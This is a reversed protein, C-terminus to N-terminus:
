CVATSSRLHRCPCPRSQLSLWPWSREQEATGESLSPSRRGLRRNRPTSPVSIGGTAGFVAVRDWERGKVRHVTSLTVGDARNTRALVDRLWSEFTAADPHLGAVQELAELDDLHSAAGAAASSDLLGMARGLGVNDKVVRLVDTTAGGSAADVVLRLDDALVDVKAAVRTDDLRGGIAGIAEPQLRHGRIWREIWTPLGRSPRRLIEKVDAADFGDPASAIRLYALAARVGTRQLLGADM